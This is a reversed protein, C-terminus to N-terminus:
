LVYPMKLWFDGIKYEPQWDNRTGHVNSNNYYWWLYQKLKTKNSQSTASDNSYVHMPQNMSYRGMGGKGPGQDGYHWPINRQRTGTEQNGMAPHGFIAMASVCFRSAVDLRLL